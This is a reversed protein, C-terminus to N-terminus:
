KRKQDVTELLKNLENLDEARELAENREILGAAYREALSQDLTCMGDKSHTQLLGPIQHTNNERILNAVAPTGVMIEFAAVRGKGAARPMLTQSIVGRLISALQARVNEQYGKPFANIIRDVTDKAGITHVTSFVLHGTEAALLAAEMTEPDRMEGVMIVDPDERLGARLGDAFTLFDTGLERQTIIAQKRQHKFEIPDELSLIHVDSRETNILDMMAALTTTKGSGTPGTVLVLGRPLRTFDYFIQPALLDQLQPMKQPIRRLVAGWDGQARFVNVRFRHHEYALGFDTQGVDRATQISDDPTFARLLDFIEDKDVAPGEARILRGDMRYVPPEGVRLHLDSAGSQIALALVDSMQYRYGESPLRGTSELTRVTEPNPPPLSASERLKRTGSDTPIQVAVPTPQEEPPNM